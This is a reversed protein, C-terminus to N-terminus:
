ALAQARRHAFYGASSESFADCTKGIRAGIILQLDSSTLDATGAVITGTDDVSIDGVEFLSDCEVCAVMVNSLDLKEADTCESRPKIHAARLHRVPLRRRCVACHAESASGLKAQRLRGQERRQMISALRDLAGDVALVGAGEAASVGLLPFNVPLIVPRSQQNSSLRLAEMVELGVTAANVNEVETLLDFYPRYPYLGDPWVADTATETLNTIVGLHGSALTAGDWGGPPVRNSPGRHGIFVLDGVGLRRFESLYNSRSMLEESFGWVRDRLGITLNAASAAGVYVVAVHDPM